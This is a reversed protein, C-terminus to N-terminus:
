SIKSIGGIGNLQVGGYDLVFSCVVFETLFPGM